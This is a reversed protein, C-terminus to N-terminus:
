PNRLSILFDLEAKAAIIWDERGTKSGYRWESLAMRAEYYPTGNCFQQGGTAAYVPCRACEEFYEVDDRENEVYDFAYFKLCLACDNGSCRAESPREAAVNQKWHEISLELATVAEETMESM